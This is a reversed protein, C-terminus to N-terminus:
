KIFESRAQLLCRAHNPGARNASVYISLPPGPDTDVLREMAPPPPTAQGSGPLGPQRASAQTPTETPTSTSTAAETATPSPTPTRTPWPTRTPYPTLTPVPTRTPAPPHTPRPTYTAAPTYTPYPTSTPVAEDPTETTAKSGRCATLLIAVCLVFATYRKM